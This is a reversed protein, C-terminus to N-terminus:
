DKNEIPAANQKELLDLIDEEKVFGNDGDSEFEDNELDFMKTSPKTELMTSVEGESLVECELEFNDELNLEEM